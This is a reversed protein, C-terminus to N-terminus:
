TRHSSNLRTSKRDLGLTCYQGAHHPPRVFDPKIRIVMLDSHLKQLYVVTGNYRKQRLDAIEEATM